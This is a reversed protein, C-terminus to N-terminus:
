RFSTGPCAASSSSPVASRALPRTSAGVRAERSIARATTPRVRTSHSEPHVMTATGSSPARSVTLAKGGLVRTVSKAWRARFCHGSSVRRPTNPNVASAVTDPALSTAPRAGRSAASHEKHASMAGQRRSANNGPGEAPSRARTSWSDDNANSSENPAMRSAVESTAAAGKETGTAWSQGVRMGVATM